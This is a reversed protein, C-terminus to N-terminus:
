NKKFFRDPGLDPNFKAPFMTDARGMPEPFLPANTLPMPGVIFRDRGQVLHELAAHYSRCACVGIVTGPYVNSYSPAVVLIDASSTNPNLNFRDPTAFVPPPNSNAGILEPVPALRELVVYVTGDLNRTEQLM